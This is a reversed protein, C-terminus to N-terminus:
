NFLLASTFDDPYPAEVQVFEGDSDVFSISRAHLALREFGLLPKKKPAYLADAVVPHQIEKMHVRIQHTRGTKPKVELFCYHENGDIGRQLVNFHTTAERLVGRANKGASRQRFDSRSKGIPKDIVGTDEKINGYVFTHYIKQVEKEKFQNKLHEFAEHTKALVLVGSTDKDLRHVIGPRDIEGNETQLSEGVGQMEPYNEIIWDVLTADKSRGDPHVMLGAPKNIVLINKNEFLIEM